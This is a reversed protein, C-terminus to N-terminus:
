ARAAPKREALASLAAERVTRFPVGRELALRKVQEFEPMANVISGNLRGIKVDIQGFATQVRVIERELCEREMERVRVGLTTTEKYILDTLTARSEARCLISLMVAPRNKKMQIPTFWCDLAGLEFSREMVYGLIQPALDDINTELVQVRDIVSRGNAPARAAVSEGVMIRLVNPFKLYDRTGAGYGIAEGKIEVLPEYSECVTSIIAAGTPTTLEGEVDTSYIPYERLLETVAPPPVPFKGHAIEIFGSGVHIRSCVFREIGLLEFGICAGIVDIVADLAGVEHFHVREIGIGHIKAEAAALREFIAISRSKVGESLASGSIIRVIESLHRHSHEHPVKVNAHTATIGSRDANTFEIEYGNLGLKGIENILQDRDVGADVLAGLIM